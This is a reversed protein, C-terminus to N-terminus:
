SNGFSSAITWFNDDRLQYTINTSPVAGRIYPSVSYTQQTYRNQTANVTDAPRAGFPSLFSPSIRALADVFAFNEIAELKATLYANPM